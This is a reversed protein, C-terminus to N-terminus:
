TNIFVNVICTSSTLKSIAQLDATQKDSIAENNFFREDAPMIFLNALLHQIFIHWYQLHLRKVLVEFAHWEGIILTKKKKDNQKPLHYTM